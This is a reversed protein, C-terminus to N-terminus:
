RVTFVAHPAGQRRDPLHGSESMGPPANHRQSNQQLDNPRRFRL